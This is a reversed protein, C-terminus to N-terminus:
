RATPLTSGGGSDGSEEASDSGASGPDIPRTTVLKLGERSTDLIRIDEQALVVPQLVRLRAPNDTPIRPHRRREKPDTGQGLHQSLGRMRAVFKKTEELHNTCSECESVHRAVFSTNEETLQGLLYLELDKASVHM